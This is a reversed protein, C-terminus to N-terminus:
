KAEAVQQKLMTTSIGDTRPLYIVDCLARLHDFHGVWDNGMVFADVGYTAIDREKQNWCTEPIALDVFRCSRVIELRDSFPVWARKGKSSNFEDTSVAVILVDFMDKIRRFLNLHGIHFLDFTGYTIATGKKPARRPVVEGRGVTSM